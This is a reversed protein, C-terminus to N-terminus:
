VTVSMGSSMGSMLFFIEMFTEGDVDFITAWSRSQVVSWDVGDESRAFANENSTISRRRATSQTYWGLKTPGNTSVIRYKAVGPFVVTTTTTSSLASSTTRSNKSAHSCLSGLHCIQLIPSPLSLEAYASHIPRNFSSIYHDPLWHQLVPAHIYIYCPQGNKPLTSGSDHGALPQCSTVRVANSVEHRLV